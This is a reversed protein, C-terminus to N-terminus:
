HQESLKYDNIQRALQQKARHFQSASTGESIKLISAIEKHSKHEFVYLNFITRYGVPLSRIMELIVGTSVDKIDPETEQESDTQIDPMDSNVPRIFVSRKQSKKLFKLSENVVIKTCWGKLSGEGVYKFTDIAKLIKMFSEQLIDKVDERDTIYGSCVTTLYGIYLTYFEKVADKEHRRVKELIVSEKEKGVIM